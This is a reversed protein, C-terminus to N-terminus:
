DVLAAPAQGAFGAEVLKQLEERPVLLRGKPGTGPVRFAGIRGARVWERVTYTSRGTAAAVEEVTYHSKRVGSLQIRIDDIARFLQGLIEVLRDDIGTVEQQLPARLAELEPVTAARVRRITPHKARPHMSEGRSGERGLALPAVNV